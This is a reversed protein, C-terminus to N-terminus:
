STNNSTGQKKSRDKQIGAPNEGLGALDGSIERLIKIASSRDGPALHFLTLRCGYLDIEDLLSQVRQVRKRARLNGEGHRCAGEPCVWVTVADAGAELAKLLFLDKVMSSCAMPIAHVEVAPDAAPLFEAENELTRTCYFIFLRFTRSM